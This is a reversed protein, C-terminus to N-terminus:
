FALRAWHAIFARLPGMPPLFRDLEAQTRVWHSQGILSVVDLYPIVSPWKAVVLADEADMVMSRSNQNQSGMITYFIVRERAAADLGEYWGQVEGSGVDLIPDQVEDFDRVAAARAQVQAIRQTVFSWTMEGWSPLTMMSWAERSAFLNSKLHIRTRDDSEIGDGPAAAARSRAVGAQSLPAIEDRLRELEEYVHTPFGFLDRLWPTSRFTELVGSVKRPIDSVQVDSDFIGLQLLGGSAALEPAFAERAALMRSLLERSLLQTGFVEVSNSAYSPAIVLVRAGRLSAGFLAAGWFESNWFSDPIMIVSGSPMLTYIVAKAVNVNKRQFGSGNHVGLARLPWGARSVALRVRADYDSARERPQLVYPVQELPLGHGRLLDRVASKLGLLAPGRVLLSRDEWTLNTYHEGVGAGTYIAEGRYPDEETVDYFVLKRHDRLMNDQIPLGPILSWSWFTPDPRNTVNVHVKVLDRLWAEGYQMRQAQLLSSNAVARRLADQALALSDEWRRFERPLRVRHHLPDELLALFLPAARLSYYWQDHLIVYTPFTGTSDYARVRATMAALYSRVVQNYAVADPDGVDDIGRFDHTVLVHYREAARITRSLQYQFQENIVYSVFNGETFPEEAALAVIADLEAQTDHEEPRLGYQLPLWAFRTEGWTEAIAERNAELIDLVATFVSLAATAEAGTVGGEAHLWRTFVGQARYAFRKVTDPRRRQGLLRDYPLLVEELIVRRAHVGAARGRPPRRPNRYLILAFAREMTDHFRTAESEVTRVASADRLAVAEHLELLAAPVAPTRSGQPVERGLFPVALLRIVRAAESLERLAADYERLGEVPAVSARPRGEIRVRDRPPRTRGTPIERFFPIELGATVSGGRTPMYDLRFMSGDRFLGGRRGPHTFSYIPAVEGSRASVDIGATLRAIPVALRLRGGSEFRGYQTGLYGEVGLTIGSVVPNGIPRAASFRVQGNMGTPGADNLAGTSAGATVIWNRPQGLSTTRAGDVPARVQAMLLAPLGALGAVLTRPLRDLVNLPVPISEDVDCGVDIQRVLGDVLPYSGAIRVRM